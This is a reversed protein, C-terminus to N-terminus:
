CKISIILEILTQSPDEFETKKMKYLTLDSKPTQCGLTLLLLTQRRATATHMTDNMSNKNRTQYLPTETKIHKGM